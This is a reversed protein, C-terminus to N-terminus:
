PLSLSAIARTMALTDQLRLFRSVFAEVRESLEDDNDITRARVLTFPKEFLRESTRNLHLCERQVVRDLFQIRLKVDEELM